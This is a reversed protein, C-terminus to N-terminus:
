GTAIPEDDGAGTFVDRWGPCLRDFDLRKEPYQAIVRAPIGEAMCEAVNIGTQKIQGDVREAYRAAIEYMVGAAIRKHHHGEMSSVSPTLSLELADGSLYASVRTNEEPIERSWGSGANKTFLGVALVTEALEKILPSVSTKCCM